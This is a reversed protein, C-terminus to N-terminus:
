AFCKGATKGTYHHYNTLNSRILEWSDDVMEQTFIVDFNSIIRMLALHREFIKDNDLGDVNWTILKM